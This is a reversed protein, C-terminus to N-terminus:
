LVKKGHNERGEGLCSAEQTLATCDLRYKSVLLINNNCLVSQPLAFCHIEGQLYLSCIGVIHTTTRLHSWVFICLSMKATAKKLLALLEM